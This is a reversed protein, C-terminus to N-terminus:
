TAIMTSPGLAYLSKPSAAGGARASFPQLEIMNVWCGLSKIETLQPSCGSFFEIGFQSFTLYQALFAVYLFRQLLSSAFGLVARVGSVSSV